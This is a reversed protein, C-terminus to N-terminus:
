FEWGLGFTAAEFYTDYQASVTLSELLWVHVGATVNARIDRDVRQFFDSGVSDVFRRYREITAVGAGIFVGFSPDLRRTAVANVIFETNRPELEATPTTFIAGVRPDTDTATGQLQFGFGWGEDRYHYIGLGYADDDRGSRPTWSGEFLMAQEASPANGQRTYDGPTNQVQTVVLPSGDLQAGQPLSAPAMPSACAGLFLPALLTAIPLLAAAARPLTVHM